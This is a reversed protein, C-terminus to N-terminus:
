VHGIRSRAQLDFFFEPYSQQLFSSLPRDGTQALTLAFGPDIDLARVAVLLESQRDALEPRQRVLMRIVAPGARKPTLIEMLLSKLAFANSKRNIQSAHDILLSLLRADIHVHRAEDKLHARHLEVFNAELAGLSEDNDVDLAARSIHNSHEEMILVLWLLFILQRPIHSLCWLLLAELRSMRTFYYSQSHYLEPMCHLNLQRFMASHRLEEQLMIQLCQALEPERQVLRHRAIRTIVRNTFGSEFLMFHENGSVGSLQNYLLRQEHTLTAYQPTHCLQTFKEPIFPRQHDIPAFEIETQQQEALRSQKLIQRTTLISM